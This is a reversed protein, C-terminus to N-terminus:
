ANNEPDAVRAKLEAGRHQNRLDMAQSFVDFSHTEGDPLVVDFVMRESAATPNKRGCGCDKKM